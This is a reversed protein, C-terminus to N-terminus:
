LFRTGRFLVSNQLLNAGLDALAGCACWGRPLLPPPPPAEDDFLVALQTVTVGDRVVDLLFGNPSGDERQNPSVRM